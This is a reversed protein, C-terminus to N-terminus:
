SIHLSYVDFKVNLARVEEKSRPMLFDKEYVGHSTYISPSILGLATSEDGYNVRDAVRRFRPAPIDSRVSPVGYTRWDSFV